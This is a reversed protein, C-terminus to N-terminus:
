TSEDDTLGSLRALLEPHDQWAPMTKMYNLATQTALAPSVQDMRIAWNTFRQLMVTFDRLQGSEITCKECIQVKPVSVGCSQCNTM